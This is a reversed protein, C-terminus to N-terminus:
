KERARAHRHAGEACRECNVWGSDGDIYHEKKWIPVRHKVEDIIYRCAAFAEDDWEQNSLSDVVISHDYLADIQPSRRPVVARSRAPFAMAATGISAGELFDRRNM